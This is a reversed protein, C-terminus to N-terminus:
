SSLVSVRKGKKSSEKSFEHPIHKVVCDKYFEGFHPFVDVLIRGVLTEISDHIIAQDHNAPLIEELTLDQADRVPDDDHIALDMTNIMNQAVYANAFLHMVNDKDLGHQNLISEFQTNDWTVDHDEILESFIKRFETCDSIKLSCIILYQVNSKTASIKVKNSRLLLNRGALSVNLNGNSLTMSMTTSMRPQSSSREVELM